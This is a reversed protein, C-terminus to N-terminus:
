RPIEGYNEFTESVILRPWYTALFKANDTLGTVISLTIPRINDSCHVRPGIRLLAVDFGPQKYVYSPHIEIGKM